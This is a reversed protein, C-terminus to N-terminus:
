TVGGSGIFRVLKRRSGRTVSMLAVNSRTVKPGNGTYCIARILPDRVLGGTVTRRHKNDNVM